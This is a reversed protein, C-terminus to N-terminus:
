FAYKVICYLARFGDKLGIKKGESYTRANYSVPVEKVRVGLRAVKATMEPEIGFREERLDLKRLVDLRFVKYCTEMDTLRLGTFLNSAFTLFRNANRHVFYGKGGGKNELFRSGFVVDCGGEDLVAAIKKLDAPDYEMDADHIAVYDGTAKEFGTRLAAGKGRNVQHRVLLISPNQAAMELAIKASQDGSCDDVVIVELALSEDAISLLRKLCEKLSSEENYCPVVVSLTRRM